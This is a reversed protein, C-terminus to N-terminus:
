RKGANLLEQARRLQTEKTMNAKWKKHHQLLWSIGLLILLFLSSLSFM